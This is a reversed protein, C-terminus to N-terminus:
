SSRKASRSASNISAHSVSVNSLCTSAGSQGVGCRSSSETPPCTRRQEETKVGQRDSGKTGQLSSGAGLLALVPTHSSKSLHEGTGQQCTPPASRARQQGNCQRGGCRGGGGRRGRRLGAGARRVGAVHAADANAAARQPVLSLLPAHGQAVDVPPQLDAGALRLAHPLHAGRPAAAPGCAHGAPRIAAHRWAAKRGGRRGGKRQTASPGWESSCPVASRKSAERLSSSMRSRSWVRSLELRKWSTGGCLSRRAAAGCCARHSGGSDRRAQWGGAALL